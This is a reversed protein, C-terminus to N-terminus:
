PSALGLNRNLYDLARDLGGNPDPAGGGGGGGGGGGRQGGGGGPTMEPPATPIPGHRPSDLERNIDAVTPVIIPNPPNPNNVFNGQGESLPLVAVHMNALLQWDERTRRQSRIRGVSHCRRCTQDIENPVREVVVRREVEYFGVRAESPTLGHNNSLYKVIARAQTPDLQLGHNRVMRKIITQWGEPTTRIYSIRTMRGNDDVKHCGSCATKTANDTVPVGVDSQPEQALLVAAGAFVFVAFVFRKLRM